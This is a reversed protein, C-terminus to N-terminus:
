SEENKENKKEKNRQSSVKLHTTNLKVLEKKQKILDKNIMELSNKLNTMLKGRWFLKTM